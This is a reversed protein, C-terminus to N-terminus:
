NTYFILDNYHLKEEPHSIVSLSWFRYECSKDLVEKEKEPHNFFFYCMEEWEQMDNSALLEFRALSGSDALLRIKSVRQPRKFKVTIYQEEESGDFFFSDPRGKLFAKARINDSSGM